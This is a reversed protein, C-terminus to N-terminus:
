LLCNCLSRQSFNKAAKRVLIFACRGRQGKSFLRVYTLLPLAVRTDLSDQETEYLHWKRTRLKNAILSSFNGTSTFYLIVHAKHWVFTDRLCVNCVVVCRFSQFVTKLRVLKWVGCICDSEIQRWTKGVTGRKTNASVNRINIAAKWKEHKSYNNKHKM